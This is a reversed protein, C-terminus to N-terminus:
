WTATAAYITAATTPPAVTTALTFTYNNGSITFTIVTAAAAYTAGQLQASGAIDPMTYTTTFGGVLRSAFMISNASRLGGLMARATADTANQTLNVYTPIAVAALIGIIVIVMVLEILTFGKEKKLMM